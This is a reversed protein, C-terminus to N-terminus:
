KEALVKKVEEWDLNNIEAPTMKALKEKTLKESQQQGKGADIGETPKPEGFQDPYDAKLDRVLDKLNTVKGSKDDFELESKIANWMLGTGKAGEKELAAVVEDRADRLRIQTRLDNIEADKKEDESLKARAEAADKEKAADKRARDVARDIDAQTFSKEPSKGEGEKPTPDQTGEDAKPAPDPTGEGEGAKPAPKGEGEGASKGIAAKSM